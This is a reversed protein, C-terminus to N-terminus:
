GAARDKFWTVAVRKFIPWWNSFCQTVTVDYHARHRRFDGFNRNNVWGNTWVCILSFILAGRWQGKHPFEGTVPSNGVYLALLASFTEMQHRWRPSVHRQGNTGSRLILQLSQVVHSPVLVITFEPSHPHPPTPTPPPPPTPTPPPAKYEQSQAQSAIKSFIPSCTVYMIMIQYNLCMFVFFLELRVVANATKYIWIQWYEHVGCQIQLCLSFHMRSLRLPISEFFWSISYYIM